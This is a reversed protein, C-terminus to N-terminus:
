FNNNILIEKRELGPIRVEAAVAVDARGVQRGHLGVGQRQGGEVESSGDGASRGVGLGDVVMQGHLGDDPAVLYTPEHQSGRKTGLRVTSIAAAAM